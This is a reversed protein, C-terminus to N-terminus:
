EALDETHEMEDKEIIGKGDAATQFNVLSEADDKTLLEDNINKGTTKNVVNYKGGGRHVIFFNQPLENDPNEDTAVDVGEPIIQEFLDMFGEPMTAGEDLTVKDGPKLKVRKGDVLLSCSGSKLKYQKRM